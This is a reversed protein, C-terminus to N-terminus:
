ELALSNFYADVRMQIIEAEQESFKLKLWEIPHKNLKSSNCSRCAPLCNKATTGPCDTHSLPIYHDLTIKDPRALSYACCGDWYELAYNWQAATLTDPLVRKRARRRQRIAFTKDKNRKILDDSSQKARVKNKAYWERSYQRASDGNEAYWKEKAQHYQGKNNAYHQRFKTLYRDRHKYYHLRKRARVKSPHKLNYKIRAQRFLEPAEARRKRSSDRSIKRVKDGNRSRYSDCTEQHCVKCHSGLGDPRRKDVVFHERTAPFVQKCVTCTKEVSPDDNPETRLTKRYKELCIKCRPTLGHRGLKLPFFYEKTAPFTQGCNTCTKLIDPDTNPENRKHHKSAERECVKCRASFGDRGSKHRRFYEKTAPFEQGCKSCRKSQM